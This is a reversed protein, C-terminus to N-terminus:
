QRVSFNDRRLILWLKRFKRFSWRPTSIASLIMSLSPYILFQIDNLINWLVIGVEVVTSWRQLAIMLSTKVLLRVSPVIAAPIMLTVTERGRGQFEIPHMHSDTGVRGDAHIKSTANTASEPLSVNFGKGRSKTSLTAYNCDGASVLGAKAWARLVTKRPM